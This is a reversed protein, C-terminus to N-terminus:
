KILYYIEKFIETSANIEKNFLDMHIGYKDVNMQFINNEKSSNVYAKVNKNDILEENSIKHKKLLRNKDDEDIDKNSLMILNNFERLIHDSHTTIVVKINNNTLMILLQALLVQSDLHLNLEPEDIVLIDGKKAIYRIYLDLLYLSKTASSSLHMPLQIKPQNKIKTPHYSTGNSSSKYIGGTLKKLKNTIANNETLFSKNKALEQAYRISEINDRIPLSYRSRMKNLLSFPTIKNNSNNNNKLEAIQDLIAHAQSDLDKYFMAAGTRESTIVFTNPIYIKFIMEWIAKNLVYNLFDKESNDNKGLKIHISNEGKNKNLMFNNNSNSSEIKLKIELNNFELDLNDISLSLKSQSFIHDETNFIDGMDKKSFVSSYEKLLQSPIINNITYEKKQILLDLEKSKLFPRNFKKINKLFGYISHSAYTKGTNNKGCIITLNGLEVNGSKIFGINNFEFKM